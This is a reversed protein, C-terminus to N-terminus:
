RQSNNNRWRFIGCPIKIPRIGCFLRVYTLNEFLIQTLDKRLLICKITYELALSFSPVGLIGPKVRAPSLFIAERSEWGWKTFILCWQRNYWSGTNKYKALKKQISLVSELRNEMIQIEPSGMQITISYQPAFNKM